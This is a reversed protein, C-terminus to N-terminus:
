RRSKQRSAGRVVQGFFGCTEENSFQFPFPNWCDQNERRPHPIEFVYWSITILKWLLILFFYFFLLMFQVLSSMATWSTGRILFPQPIFWPLHPPCILVQFLPFSLFWSPFFLTSSTLCVLVFHLCAEFSLSPSGWPPFLCRHSSPSCSLLGSVCVSFHHIGIGWRSALFGGGIKFELYCRLLEVKLYKM